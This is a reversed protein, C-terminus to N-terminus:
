DDANEVSVSIVRTMTVMVPYGTMLIATLELTQDSSTWARSQVDAVPPYESAAPAWEAGLTARDLAALVSADDAGMVDCRGEATNIFVDIPTPRSSPLEFMRRAPDELVVDAAVAGLAALAPDAADVAVRGQLVPACVELTARVTLDVPDPLQPAVAASLIILALPSM